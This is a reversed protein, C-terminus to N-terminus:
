VDDCIRNLYSNILPCYGTRQQALLIRAIRPLKQDAIKSAPTDLQKSDTWSHPGHTSPYKQACNQARQSKIINQQKHQKASDRYTYKTDTEHSSFQNFLNKIILVIARTVQYSDALFQEALMETHATVPLIEGETHLDNIESMKVCGTIIRLALNQQTQLHNWNTNSSTSAWFPLVTAWSAGVSLELDSILDRKHLGLRLWCHNLIKNCETIKRQHKKCTRRCSFISCVISPIM